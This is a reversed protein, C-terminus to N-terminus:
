SLTKEGSLFDEYPNPFIPVDLDFFFDFFKLVIHQWRTTASIDVFRDM